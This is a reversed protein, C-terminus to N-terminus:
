RKLSPPHNLPKSEHIKSRSRKLRELRWWKLWGILDEVAECARRKGNRIRRIANGPADAWSAGTRGAGRFPNSSVYSLGGAAGRFISVEGRITETNPANM